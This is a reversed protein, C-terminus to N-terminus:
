ASRPANAPDAEAVASRINNLAERSSAFLGDYAQFNHPMDPWIDLRVKAGKARQIDAFEVIMDRLVERGGAQLYLPALGSYDHYIPSLAQRGFHGKPDLWEGFKLAMWGQVLDYRDNDRLSSGRDGIDTWPCLGICLAPQDLGLSKLRQLLMLSMHGGASDGIVVVSKAPREQTVHKWAALADDSQAPHPHEPTLRYRTVFVEAGTHHCLMQAYRTAIEGGFTYGGGHFYLLAMDTKKHKPKIWHGCPGAGYAPTVDYIEDTLPTLSEFIQRGKSMDTQQMATTFQHRMFRIGIEMNADWDPAIRLGAARRAFTAIAIRYLTMLSQVRLTIPGTFRLNAM